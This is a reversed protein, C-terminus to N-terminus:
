SGSGLRQALADNEDLQQHLWTVADEILQDMVKPTLILKLIGPLQAYVWAIAEAKKAQGTQSQLHEEALLVARKALAVIWERKGGLWAWTIGGVIVLTFAIDLGYTKIFEIIHM